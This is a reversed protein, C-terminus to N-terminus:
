ELFSFRKVYSQSQWWDGLGAVQKKNALAVGLLAISYVIHDDIFPNNEGPMVATWMMMLMVIGSIAAVKVGIGLVLATGILGLGAMFAVDVFKNGAIGSYFDEFPGQTAFTLFGETPSGGNAVAKECLIQVTEVGTQPDVSRCTGFGLGLMKDAFAWLFILGITIRLAAWVYATKDSTKNNKAM